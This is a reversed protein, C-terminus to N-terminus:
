RNFDVFGVFDTWLLVHYEGIVVLLSGQGALWGVLRGVRRPPSCKHIARSTKLIGADLKV